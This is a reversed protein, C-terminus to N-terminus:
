LFIGAIVPGTLMIVGYLLWLHNDERRISGILWRVAAALPFASAYVLRVMNNYSGDLGPLFLSALMFWALLFLLFTDTRWSTCQRGADTTEDPM